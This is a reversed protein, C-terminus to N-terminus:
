GLPREGLPREFLFVNRIQRLLKENREGEQGMGSTASKLARSACFILNGKKYCLVTLLKRSPSKFAHDLMGALM